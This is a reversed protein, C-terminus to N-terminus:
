WERDDYIIDNSNPNNEIDRTIWAENWNWWIECEFKITKLQEVTENYTVTWYYSNEEASSEFDRSFVPDVLQYDNIIKDECIKIHNQGTSLIVDNQNITPTNQIGKLLTLFVIICIISAIFVFLIKRTQERTHSM